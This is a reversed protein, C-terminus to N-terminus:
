SDGGNQLINLASAVADENESNQEETPTSYHKYNGLKESTKECRSKYHELELDYEMKARPIKALEDKLRENEQQLGNFAKRVDSIEQRLLEEKQQLNTIYDLSDDIANICDITKIDWMLDNYFIKHEGNDIKSQLYEKLHELIEKIEDKM